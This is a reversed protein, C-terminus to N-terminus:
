WKPPNDPCTMQPFLTKLPMFCGCLRCQKTKEKFNECQTCIKYKEDSTM